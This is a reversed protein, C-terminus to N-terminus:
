LRSTSEYFLEELTLGKVGIRASSISLSIGCADTSSKKLRLPTDIVEFSSEKILIGAGKEACPDVKRMMIIVHSFTRFLIVDMKLIFLSTREMSDETIFQVSYLCCMKKICYQFLAVRAFSEM